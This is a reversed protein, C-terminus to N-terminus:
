LRVASNSQNWGSTWNWEVRCHRHYRWAAQLLSHSWGCWHRGWRSANCSSPERWRRAPVTTPSSTFKLSSCAMNVTSLTCASQYMTTLPWTHRLVSLNTPCCLSVSKQFQRVTVFGCSSPLCKYLAWSLHLSFSGFFSGGQGTSSRKHYQTM